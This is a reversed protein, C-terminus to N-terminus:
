GPWAWAGPLSLSIMSISMSISISINCAKSVYQVFCAAEDISSAVMSLSFSSSLTKRLTIVKEIGIRMHQQHSIINALTGSM